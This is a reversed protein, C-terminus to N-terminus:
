FSLKLGFQIDRPSGASTIQGFDGTDATSAPDGFNPHNFVNFFQARFEMSFRESIRNRKIFSIDWEDLGPGPLINRGSTGFRPTGKELAQALYITTFCNTNFWEAVTKPGAGSCVRDPRPSESGTNSFDEPSYVMYPLTAQFTLIGAFEWGGALANVLGPRNLFQRGSGFPLQWIPSISLQQPIAVDGLSYDARPNNANQALTDETSDGGNVDMEKAYSYSLLM